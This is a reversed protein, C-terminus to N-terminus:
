RGGMFIGHNEGEMKTKLFGMATERRGKGYITKLIGVRM